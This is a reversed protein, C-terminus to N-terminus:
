ALQHPNYHMFISNNKFKETKKIFTGSIWPVGSYIALSFANNAKLFTIRRSYIIISIEKTKKLSFFGTRTSSVENHKLQM